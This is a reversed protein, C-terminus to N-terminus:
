RISAYPPRSFRVGTKREACVVHVACTVHCQLTFCATLCTVHLTFCATICAVNSAKTLVLPMYVPAHPSAHPMHQGSSSLHCSSHLMCIIRAAHSMGVLSSVASSCTPPCHCSNGRRNFECCPRLQVGSCSCVLHTFLKSLSILSLKTGTVGGPPNRLQKRSSCISGDRMLVACNVPGNRLAGVDIGISWETRQFLPM